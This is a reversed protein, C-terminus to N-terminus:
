SYLFAKGSSRKCTNKWKSYRRAGLKGFNIKQEPKMSKVTKETKEPNRSWVAGIPKFHIGRGVWSRDTGISSIHEGWRKYPNKRTIGTYIKKSADRRTSVGTYVWGGKKTNNVM